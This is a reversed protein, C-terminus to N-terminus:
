SRFDSRFGQIELCTSLYLSKSLNCFFNYNQQPILDSTTITITKHEGQEYLSNIISMATRPKKRVNPKWM